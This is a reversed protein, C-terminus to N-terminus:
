FPLDYGGHEAHNNGFGVHRRPRSNVEHGNIAFSSLRRSGSM